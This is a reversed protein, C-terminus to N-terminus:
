AKGAVSGGEEASSKPPRGLRDNLVLFRFSEGGGGGGLSRMEEVIIGLIDLTLSSRPSLSNMGPEEVIVEGSRVEGLRLCSKGM